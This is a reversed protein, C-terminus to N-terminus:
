GLGVLTWFEHAKRQRVFSGVEHTRSTGVSEPVRSYRLIEEITKPILDPHARLHALEAPNQLLALWGSALLCATTRSLAVFTPGPMPITADRFYKELEADAVTARQRLEEDMPEAAARSVIRAASLLSERDAPSSGTVIEAAALCWPEAFESVLDIPSNAPVAVAEMRRQWENLRAPSFADM